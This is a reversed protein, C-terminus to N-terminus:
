EGQRVRELLALVAEPSIAGVRRVERRGGLVAIFTPIAAVNERDAEAPNEEINVIRLSEVNEGLQRELVRWAQCWPATFVVLEREDVSCRRWLEPRTIHAM